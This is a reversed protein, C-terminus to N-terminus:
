GVACHISSSSSFRESRDTRTVRRHEKSCQWWPILATREEGATQKSLYILVKQHDTNALDPCSLPCACLLYQHTAQFMVLTWPLPKYLSGILKTSAPLPHTTHSTGQLAPAPFCSRQPEKGTVIEVKDGARGDRFRCAYTRGCSLIFTDLCCAPM